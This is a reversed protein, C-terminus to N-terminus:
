KQLIKFGAKDDFGKKCYICNYQFFNEAEPINKPTTLIKNRLQRGEYVFEPQAATGCPSVALHM